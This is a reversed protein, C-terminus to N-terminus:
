PIMLMNLMCIHKISLNTDNSSQQEMSLVLRHIFFTRNYHSFQRSPLATLKIVPIYPTILPPTHLLTGEQVTLNASDNQPSLHQVETPEQCDRSKNYAIKKINGQSDQFGRNKQKLRQFVIIEPIYWWAWQPVNQIESLKEMPLQSTSMKGLKGSSTSVTASKERTGPNSIHTEHGQLICGRRLLENKM